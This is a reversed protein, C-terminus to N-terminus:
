HRGPLRIDNTRMQLEMTFRTPDGDAAEICQRYVDACNQAKQYDEETPAVDHSSGVFIDKGTEHLVSDRLELSKTIFELNTMENGSFLEKAVEQSPRYTKEVEDISKDYGGNVFQNIMRQNDALVKDYQEKSVSNQKLRSLAEIYDTNNDNVAETATVNKQEEQM